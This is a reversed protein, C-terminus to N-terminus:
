WVMDVHPWVSFDMTAHSWQMVFLFILAGPRGGNSM